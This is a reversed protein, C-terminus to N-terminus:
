ASAGRLAAAGAVIMEVDPCEGTQGMLWDVISTAGRLSALAVLDDDYAFRVHYVDRGDLAFDWATEARLSRPSGALAMCEVVVHELLHPTETDSLEGAIGHATGNECTHRSLGPLLALAREAVGPSASTRALSPDLTRVVTDIRDPSVEVREIALVGM